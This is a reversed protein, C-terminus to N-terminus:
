KKKRNLDELVKSLYKGYSTKQNYKSILREFKEIGIYGMRLAVEEICAINYGQKKELVAVFNSADLLSDFSGVDMWAVGRGLVRVNLKGRELYEQNVSTIELEGRDSPKVTKAIEVVGNDYFYIGPIAYDSKPSKPKEEVSIVRGQSDFEVIGFESPNSVKYGFVIAGEKLSAASQLTEVLKDGYIVNDGLILAVSDSGIFDKGLIFAEALGNPKQQVCYQIKLGYEEGSGFLQEILPLDRETSIILIERIGALMLTSLPYYIAPKDYVPMLQKSVCKTLPYLRTGSGGALIIGKM